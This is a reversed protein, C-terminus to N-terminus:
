QQQETTPVEPKLKKYAEFVTSMGVEEVYNDKRYKNVLQTTKRISFGKQVADAVIQMEMSGDPILLVRSSEGMQKRSGDYEIGLNRCIVIRTLVEKVGKRQYHNLGLRASIDAVTGGTGDWESPKPSGLTHMYIYGIAVRRSQYDRNTLQQQPSPTDTDAPSPTDTYNTHIGDINNRSKVERTVSTPTAAPPIVTEVSQKPTKSTQIKYNDGQKHKPAICQRGRKKTKNVKEPPPLAVTPTDASQPMEM